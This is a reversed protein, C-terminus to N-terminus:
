KNIYTNNNIVGNNIKMNEINDIKREEANDKPLNLSKIIYNNKISDDKIIKFGCNKMDFENLTTFYRATHVKEELSGNPIYKSIFYLKKTSSQYYIRRRINGRTLYYDTEIMNHVRMAYEFSSQENSIVKDYISFNDLNNGNCSMLIMSIILLILKKM